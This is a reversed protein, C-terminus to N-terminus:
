ERGTDIKDMYALMDKSVRNSIYGNDIIDSLSQEILFLGEHITPTTGHTREAAERTEKSLMRVLLVAVDARSQQEM